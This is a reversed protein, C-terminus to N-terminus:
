EVGALLAARMVTQTGVVNTAFIERSDSPWLRYDAALHFLYRVGAIAQDVSSADLIDGEHFQLDLGALHKRPSSPRVLAAVHYGWAGLKAAVASGIFGSAGTVLVDASKMPGRVKRLTGTATPSRFPEGQRDVGGAASGVAHIRPRP